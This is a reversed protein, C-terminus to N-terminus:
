PLHIYNYIITNCARGADGVCESNRKKLFELLKLFNSMPTALSHLPHVEGRERALIKKQKSPYNQQDPCPQLTPTTLTATKAHTNLPRSFFLDDVKEPFFHVGSFIRAVGIFNSIYGTGV